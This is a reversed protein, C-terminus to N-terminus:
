MFSASMSHRTKRKPQPNMESDFIDAIAAAVDQDGTGVEDGQELDVDDNGSSNGAEPWAPWGLEDLDMAAVDAHPIEGLATVVENAHIAGDDLKINAMADETWDVEVASGAVPAGALVGVSNARRNLTASKNGGRIQRGATSRGAIGHTDHSDRICM